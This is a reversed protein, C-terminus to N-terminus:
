KDTITQEDTLTIPVTMGGPVKPNDKIQVNGKITQTVKAETTWHTAKDLKMEYTSTGTVAYKMPLGNIETFPADNDSVITADGHVLYTADTIEQLVFATKVQAKMPATLKSNVTWKDGKSIKTDPFIATAVEINNKFADSGFSQIMQSKLQAQQDAPIDPVGAFLDDYIRDIGNISAIRGKKTMIIIFPKSTMNGMITSLADKGKNDSDFDMNQGAADMKMSIRNFTVDMAYATDTVGTVKFSMKAAIISTVDQQQGNITQSILMKANTVMYYTNGQTLNLTFGIKQGYTLVSTILLLNLTLIRKM